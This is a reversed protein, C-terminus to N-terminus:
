SYQTPDHWDHHCSRCQRATPTRALAGCRPCRNLVIEDGHEALIRTVTQQVFAEMGDSALRLVEPDESLLKRLHAKSSRTEQQAIVDSRGHTAKVTAALHRFALHEKQNMFRSYYRLIYRRIGPDSADLPPKESM